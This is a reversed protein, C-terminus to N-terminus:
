VERCICQLNFCFLRYYIESKIQLSKQDLNCHIQRLTYCFLSYKELRRTRPAIQFFIMKQLM